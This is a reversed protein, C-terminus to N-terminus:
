CFVKGKYMFGAQSLSLWFAKRSTTKFAIFIWVM